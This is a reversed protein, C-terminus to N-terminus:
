DLWGISKLKALAKETAGCERLIAELDHGEFEWDIPFTVFCDATPLLQPLQQQVLLAAKRLMSTGPDWEEDANLRETFETMEPEFDQDTLDFWHKQDLTSIPGPSAFFEQQTVAIIHPV